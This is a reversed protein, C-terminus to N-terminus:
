LCMYKDITSITVLDYFDGFHSIKVSNIAHQQATQQIDISDKNVRNFSLQVILESLHFREGM